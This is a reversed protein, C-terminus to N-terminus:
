HICKCDPLARELQEVGSLTVNTNHLDIAEVRNLGYLAPLHEDAVQADSLDILILRREDNLAQMRKVLQQWWRDDSFVKNGSVDIMDCVVNCSPLNSRIKLLGEGSIQSGSIDLERLWQMKTLDEIAADDVRTDRLTLWRLNRLAILQSVGASTVWTGGLGLTDLREISAVHQLANDDVRVAEELILTDLKNFHDLTRLGRATVKTRALGLYRLRKLGGLQEIGGDSVSTRNLSLTN